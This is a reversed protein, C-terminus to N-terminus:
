GGEKLADNEQTDALADENQERGDFSNHVVILVAGEVKIKPDCWCATDDTNHELLDELPIVHQDDPM